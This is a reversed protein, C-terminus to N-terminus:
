HVLAVMQEFPSNEFDNGGTLPCGTQDSGSSDVGGIEAQPNIDIPGGALLSLGKSADTKATMSISDFAVIQTGILVTGADGDPGGVIDVSGNSYLRVNGWKTCTSGIKAGNQITLSANTGSSTDTTLVVANAIEASGDIVVQCNTVLTIDQIKGKLILKGPKGNECDNAFYILGELLDTTTSVPANILTTQVKVASYTKPEGEELVTVDIAANIDIDSSNGSWEFNYSNGKRPVENGEDDVYEQTEGYSIQMGQAPAASLGLLGAISSFGDLSALQAVPEFQWWTQTPDGPATETTEEAFTGTVEAMNEPLLVVLPQPTMTALDEPQPHLFNRYGRVGAMMSWGIEVIQDVMPPYLDRDNPEQMMGSIDETGVTDTAPDYLYQASKIDWPKNVAPSEAGVTVAEPNEFAGGPNISVALQGHLCIDGYFQSKNANISLDERSIIGHTYCPDTGAAAIATTAVEWDTFGAIRLMTTPVGNDREVEDQFNNVLVANVPTGGQQFTRNTFDWYGIKVDGEETNSWNPDLYKGFDDDYMSMNKHAFEISDNILYNYGNAQYDGEEELNPLSMAGALAAVDATSQLMTKNRFANTSDIALGAMGVFLLLWLLCWITASGDENRTFSAASARLRTMFSRGPTM